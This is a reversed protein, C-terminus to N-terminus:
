GSDIAAPQRNRDTHANRRHLRAAAAQGLQQISGILAHIHCFLGPPILNLGIRM